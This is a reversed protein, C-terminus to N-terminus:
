ELSGVVKEVEDLIECKRHNLQLWGTHKNNKRRIKSSLIDTDLFSRLGITV